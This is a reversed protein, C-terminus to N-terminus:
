LDLFHPPPAAAERAAAHRVYFYLSAIFLSFAIALSGFIHAVHPSLSLLNSIGPFNRAQLLISPGTQLL